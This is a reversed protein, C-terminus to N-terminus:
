RPSLGQTNNISLLEVVQNQLQSLMIILASLENSIANGPPPPAIEPLPRMYYKLEGTYQYCLANVVNDHYIAMRNHQVVPIFQELDTVLREQGVKIGNARIAKAIESVNKM